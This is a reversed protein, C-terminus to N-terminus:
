YKACYRSYKCEVIADILGICFLLEMATLTYKCEVIADILRLFGPAPHFDLMCKCEVIADILREKMSSADRRAM